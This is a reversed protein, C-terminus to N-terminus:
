IDIPFKKKKIEQNHISTQSPPNLFHASKHVTPNQM